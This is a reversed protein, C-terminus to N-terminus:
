LVGEYGPFILGTGCRCNPRSPPNLVAGEPTEFLEDLGRGGENMGPVMWHELRDDPTVIWVRRTTSPLVGQQTAQRWEERQGAHSSRLTETRAINLARRNRLSLTYKSQMEAIFAEDVTGRAIRSRIRAKDVASMRRTPTFRGERLEQALNSPAAAWNPPLGVVERIARAQQVTTLGQTQGIALVIRIAERVDDAINVILTGAQTRAYLVVNPHFVAFDASLGTVSSLVDATARGTAQATHRFAREIDGAELLSHLTGGSAVAAAIVDANGGAIASLLAADDIQDILKQVADLFAKAVAPEFRKAIRAAIQYM